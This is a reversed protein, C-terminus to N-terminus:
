SGGSTAATIVRGVMRAAFLVFVAAFVVGAIWGILGTSGIFSEASGFSEAVSEPWNRFPFSVLWVGADLILTVGSAVWEFIGNLVGAAWASVAFSLATFSTGAIARWRPSNGSIYDSVTLGDSGGGGFIGTTEPEDAAM